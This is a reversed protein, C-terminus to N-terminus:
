ATPGRRSRRRAANPERVPRRRPEDGRYDVLNAEHIVAMSGNQMEFTLPTHVTDLVSVPSSSYLMRTATPGRCTPRSGGHAARRRRLHVRHARREDRLRRLRRRRVGRLPLRRRRRLRPVVVRSRARAAGGGRRRARAARQAPRPRAGSRGVAADVDHRLQTARVTPSACATACRRRGRFAFGLRSPFLIPIGAHEVSYFLAGDQLGVSVVNRGNPSAVRM